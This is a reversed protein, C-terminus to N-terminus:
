TKALFEDLRDFTSTWGGRHGDRQEVSRFGTQHFNMKTKGNQEEFTITILMENEPQGDDGDWAFTFVLREPEVIERYVGGQWLSESGDDPRLCARWYGGPRFEGEMNCAQFGRPGMWQPMMTRDSWAKWVLQRPASFIRTIVLELKTSSDPNSTTM